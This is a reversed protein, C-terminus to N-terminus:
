QRSSEVLAQIPAYDTDTRIRVTGNAVPHVDPSSPKEAAKRVRGRGDDGWRAGFGIVQHTGAVKKFDAWERRCLEEKGPRLSYYLYGREPPGYVGRPQATVFTGWVQIREPADPNPELVVRDVVAYIGTPDSAQALPVSLTLIMSAVLAIRRM